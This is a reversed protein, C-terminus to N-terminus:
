CRALRAQRRRSECRALPEVGLPQLAPLPPQNRSARGDLAAQREDLQPWAAGLMDFNDQAGPSKEADRVRTEGKEPHIHDVQPSRAGIRSSAPVSSRSRSRSIPRQGQQM